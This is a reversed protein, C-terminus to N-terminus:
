SHSSPWWHDLEALKKGGLHLSFYGERLFDLVDELAEDDLSEEVEEDETLVDEIEVFTEVEEVFTEELEFLEVEVVFTVVVALLVDVVVFIRVVDFDLVDVFAGVTVGVVGADLMETSPDHELEIVQTPEVKPLDVAKNVIGYGSANKILLYQSTKELFSSNEIHSSTLQNAGKRPTM